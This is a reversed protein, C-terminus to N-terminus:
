IRSIIPLAGPATYSRWIPKELETFDVDINGLAIFPMKLVVKINIDAVLFTEEFFWIKGLNNYLLFSASAIDYIEPPLGHLKQTSNNIPKPRLWWKTLYAPTIVNNESNCNILVKIKGVESGQFQIPYQICLM